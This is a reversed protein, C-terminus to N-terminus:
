DSLHGRRSHGGQPSSAEDPGHETEERHHHVEPGHWPPEPLQHVTTATHFTRLGIVSSTAGMIALYLVAGHWKRSKV